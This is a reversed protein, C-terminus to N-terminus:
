YKEEHGASNEVTRGQLKARAERQKELKKVQEQKFQAVPNGNKDVVNGSKKDLVSDEVPIELYDNVNAHLIDFVSPGWIAKKPPIEVGRETPKMPAGACAFNESHVNTSSM